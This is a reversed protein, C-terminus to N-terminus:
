LLSFDEFFKPYNKSMIANNNMNMNMNNIKMCNM